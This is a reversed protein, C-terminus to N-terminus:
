RSLTKFTEILVQKDDFLYKIGKIEQYKEHGKGAVLIVDNTQALMVATKIAEKRDTIAIVKKILEGDIGKQMEAIITEPIESRPNDSTLITKDSLSAAVKAMVPRKTKDRDGGCGIVTIIKQSLKVSSRLTTLIKEVADPTHAYDIVGTLKDKLSYVVDFRGEVPSLKSLTTLVQAKDFGLLRAISYVALINWTNFEGVLSTHFETGDLNLVLGTINNEKIRCTFDGNGKVSFTRHAAKCNQLLINGRKDDANILAFAEVSLNDFFSKKAAIYEDFTKHYDLHDHSINTFVGGTFHLGAIRKQHAAHSSVEMFAYDCGASVMDALLKNLQVPDPTTHTSPITTNHIKNEVTSILGTNFGLQEFLHYSLTATTTKGNTGTIGILKLQYSPKDYFNHAIIGLASASDKVSVIVTNKRDGSFGKECIVVAADKEIAADIFDNGDASVGKVAVFVSGAEVKRSDATISNVSINEDGNISVIDVGSLITNLKKM